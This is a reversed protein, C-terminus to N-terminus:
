RCEVRLSIAQCFTGVSFYLVVEFDPGVVPLVVPSFPERYCLERDIDFRGCGGTYGWKLKVM